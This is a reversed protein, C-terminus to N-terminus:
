ASASFASVPSPTAMRWTLRARIADRVAHQLTALDLREALAKCLIPRPKSLLGKAGGSTGLASLLENRWLLGAIAAPDVNPNTSGRRLTRLLVGGENQVALMLGWWRPIAARAKKLHGRGVVLMVRDFVRNYGLVQGRLRDLKDADSKIEFGTLAGNVVAIDVRVGQTVLEFEEVIRTHADGAFQRSLSLRLAQRVDRDRM